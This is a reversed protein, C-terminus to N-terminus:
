TLFTQLGGGPVTKSCKRPTILEAQNLRHTGHPGHSRSGSLASTLRQSLSVERPFVETRFMKKSTHKKIKLCISPKWKRKKEKERKEQHQYQSKFKPSQV